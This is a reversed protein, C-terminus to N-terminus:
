KQEIEKQSLTSSKEAFSKSESEVRKALSEEQEAIEKQRKELNQQELYLARKDDDLKGFHKKMDLEKEALEKEHTSIKEREALM